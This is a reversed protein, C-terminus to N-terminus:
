SATPMVEVVRRDARGFPELTVLVRGGRVPPRVFNHRAGWKPPGCRSPIFPASALSLFTIPIGALLLLALLAARL